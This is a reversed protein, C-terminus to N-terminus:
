ETGKITNLEERVFVCTDYDECTLRIHELAEIAIRLKEKTKYLEKTERANTLDELRVEDLVTMEKETTGQAFDKEFKDIDTVDDCGQNLYMECETLSFVEFLCDSEDHKLLFRQYKDRTDTDFGMRLEGTRPSARIQRVAILALEIKLQCL